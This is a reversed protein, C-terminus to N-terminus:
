LTWPFNGYVGAYLIYFPISVWFLYFLLACTIVFGYFMFAVIVRGMRFIPGLVRGVPSYDQYLPNFLNRLTIGLALVQDFSRLTERLKRWVFFFSAIYWDYIFKFIRYFFLHVLYVLSISM